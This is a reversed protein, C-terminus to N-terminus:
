ARVHFFVTQDVFWPINPFWQLHNTGPVSHVSVIGEAFHGGVIVTWRDLHEMRSLLPTHPDVSGFQQTCTGFQELLISAHEGNGRELVTWQVTNTLQLPCKFWALDGESPMQVLGFIGRDDWVWLGVILYGMLFDTREGVELWQLGLFGAEESCDEGVDTKFSILTMSTETLAFKGSYAMVTSGIRM